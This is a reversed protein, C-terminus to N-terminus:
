SKLKGSKPTAPYKDLLRRVTNINRFTAKGGIAKELAKSNVKSDSFRTQAVWYVEKGEACIDDLGTSYAGITKQDSKDFEGGAFGVHYSLASALRADSVPRFADISVLDERTRVFADADYGLADKLKKSIMHEASASDRHSSNFIVNGSAIFTEVDSFGMAEFIKKLQQM